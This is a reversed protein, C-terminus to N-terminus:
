SSVDLLENKQASPLFNKLTSSHPKLRSKPSDRTFFRRILGCFDM